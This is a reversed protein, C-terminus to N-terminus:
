GSVKEKSLNSQFLYREALFEAAKPIAEKLEESLGVKVEAPIHVIQTSLISVKVGCDDRLKCLLNSTPLHHMSFDDRKIEPLDEIPIEFVEGPRRKSDIGDVIVMEEPRQSSLTIDFLIERVGTGCDQVGIDKPIRYNESLYQCVEPGFGDDGFLINGCGLI